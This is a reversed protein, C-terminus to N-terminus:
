WSTLNRAFMKFPSDSGARLANEGTMHGSVFVEEACAHRLASVHSFTHGHLCVQSKEAM